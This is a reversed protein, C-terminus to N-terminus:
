RFDPMCLRLFIMSSCAVREEGLDSVCIDFIFNAKLNYLDVSLLTLHKLVHAEKCLQFKM